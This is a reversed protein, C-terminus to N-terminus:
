RRSSFSSQLLKAIALLPHMSKLFSASIVLGTLQGLLKKMLEPRQTLFRMTNSRPYSQSREAPVPGLKFEILQRQSAMQKRLLVRQEALSIEVPTTPTTLNTNM